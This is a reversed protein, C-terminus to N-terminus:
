WLIPPYIKLRKQKHAKLEILPPGVSSGFQRLMKYGNRYHELSFCLQRIAERKEEAGELIMVRQRETEEDLEKTRSELEAVQKYAEEIENDRSNIVEKLSGIQANLNDRELQLGDISVNLDQIIKKRDEICAKLLEIEGKLTEGMGVEKSDNKRIDEELSHCQCEWEEIKEELQTQEGVLKSMEAKMHAREFFIKQEADSLAARLDRVEHDRDALSTRLRALREQVRSRERKESNFKSKWNAIDTHAMDVQDQLQQVSECSKELKGKTVRLEKGLTKLDKNSSVEVGGKLDAEMSRYRELEIRLKSIEGESLRLKENVNRLEQEYADVKARFDQGNNEVSTGRSGEVVVREEEQMNSLKEKLERLEIELELVRRNMSNQDNGNGYFGSFSNISSTDDYEDDSDTLTLSDYANVGSGLFFEFGAARNASIRRGLKRPSPSPMTSPPESGYDSAQSQVDCPTNKMLECQVHDYREALSRYGRYFEEVLSILEPRKKYYMEAKQAFSDGDEEILKLMQRVNREMEKVNESLWKSTKPTIHNGQWWSHTKRSEMGEIKRNSHVTSHM